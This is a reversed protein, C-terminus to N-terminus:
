RRWPQKHEDPEPVAPAKDPERTWWDVDRHARGFSMRGLLGPVGAASRRISGRNARWREEIARQGPTATKGLWWYGLLCALAIGVLVLFVM